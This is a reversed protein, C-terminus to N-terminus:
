IQTEKFHYDIEQISWGDTWEWVPLYLLEQKGLQFRMLKTYSKASPFSLNTIFHCVFKSCLKGQLRCCQLDPTAM